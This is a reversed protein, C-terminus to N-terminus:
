ECATYPRYDCGCYFENLTNNTKSFKIFIDCANKLNDSCIEDRNYFCKVDVNNSNKKIGRCNTFESKFAKSCFLICKDITFKLM